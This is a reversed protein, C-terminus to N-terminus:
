KYRSKYHSLIRTDTYLALLLWCTTNEKKQSKKDNLSSFNNSPVDRQGYVTSYSM